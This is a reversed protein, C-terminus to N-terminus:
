EEHLKFINFQYIELWDRLEKKITVEENFYDPFSRPELIGSEPRVLLGNETKNCYDYYSSYPYKKLNYEAANLDKIGNQKWGPETLSLANLHIYSYIYRLYVDDDVHEARFKGEFLAGTRRYKKNFYMSYATLLKQIFKSIGGDEKERVLIHFHNSMLCYAGIDVLTEGRDYSFINTHDIDRLNVAATSNCLFLINIFRKRDTEDMFIIRKEVGRTFLHYYEDIAFNFKRQM